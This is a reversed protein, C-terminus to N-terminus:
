PVVVLVLKVAVPEPPEVRLAAFERGPITATVAYTATGTVGSSLSVVARIDTPRLLALQVLPGSVRVPVSLTGEVVLGIPPAEFVPAVLFTAAGCAAGAQSGCEIPRVEVRVVVTQRDSTINPPRDLQKTQTIDTKAGSVDVREANLGQLSDVIAKPGAVVAAPPDITINTVRYGPAPSGSVAAIIALTRQSFTQEIRVTTRARSPALSVDVRNGAESRAVLEGEVTLTEDKAGSVNVDMEVSRVSAVLEARGRLRVVPPDVAPSSGEKIRYGTPFDGILRVQVPLDRTEAPDITIPLSAPQVALVRVGSRRSEVLVARSVVDGPAVGKLDVSARFDDARLNPLESERAEVRVRITLTERVIANDPVNLAQVTVPQASEPVVGEARPNEVDQVLMWVAFAAGLSLVALAWHHSVSSRTAGLLAWAVRLATAASANWSGSM